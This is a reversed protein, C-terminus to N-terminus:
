DDNVIAEETITQIMGNLVGSLFRVKESQTLELTNFWESFRDVM